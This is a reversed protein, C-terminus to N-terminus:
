PIHNALGRLENYYLVCPLRKLNAWCVKCRLRVSPAEIIRLASTGKLIHWIFKLDFYFQRDDLRDAVQKLPQLLNKKM